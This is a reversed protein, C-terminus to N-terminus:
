TVNELQLAQTRHMRMQRLQTWDRRRSVARSFPDDLRDVGSVAQGATWHGALVVYWFAISAARRAAAAAASIQYGNRMEDWSAWVPAIHISCVVETYHITAMAWADLSTSYLYQNCIAERQRETHRERYRQRQKERDTHRDKERRDIIWTGYSHGTTLTGELKEFHTHV